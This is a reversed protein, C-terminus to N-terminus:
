STHAETMVQLLNKQFHVNLIITEKLILHTELGSIFINPIKRKTNPHPFYIM